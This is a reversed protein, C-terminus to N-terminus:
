AAAAGPGERELLAGASWTRQQAHRFTALIDNCEGLVQEGLPGPLTKCATEMDLVMVSVSYHWVTENEYGAASQQQEGVCAARQLDEPLCTDPPAWACWGGAASAAAPV